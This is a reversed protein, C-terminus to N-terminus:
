QGSTELRRCLLRSDHIFASHTQPPPPPHPHHPSHSALLTFSHWESILMLLLCLLAFAFAVAFALTLLLWHLLSLSPPLLGAARALCM